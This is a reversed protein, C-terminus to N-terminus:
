RSCTRRWRLIAVAAAVARAEGGDVDAVSAAALGVPTAEMEPEAVADVVM